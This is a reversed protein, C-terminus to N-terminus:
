DVAVLVVVAVRLTRTLCVYDDRLVAVTGHALDHEGEQRPIRLEGIHIALPVEASRRYLAGDLGSGSRELPDSSFSSRFLAFRTRGPPSPRRIGPSTTTPAWHPSSPLPLTVSRM